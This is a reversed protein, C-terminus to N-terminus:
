KLEITEIHARGMGAFPKAKQIWCLAPKARQLGLAFTANADYLGEVFFVYANSQL